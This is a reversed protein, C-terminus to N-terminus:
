SCKTPFLFCTSTAFATAVRPAGIHPPLRISDIITRIQRQCLANFKIQSLLIEIQKIKLFYYDYIKGTELPHWWFISGSSFVGSRVQLAKKVRQIHTPPVLWTQYKPRGVIPLQTQ